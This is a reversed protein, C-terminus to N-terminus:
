FMCLMNVIALCNHYLKWTQKEAFRSESAGHIGKSLDPMEWNNITSGYFCIFVSKSVHHFMSNLKATSKPAFIAPIKPTDPTDLGNWAIPWTMLEAQTMMDLTSIRLRWWQFRLIAKQQPIMGLNGIHILKPFYSKLKALILPNTM